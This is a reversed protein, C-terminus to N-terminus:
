KRLLLKKSIPAVDVSDFDDTFIYGEHEDSLKIDDLSTVEGRFFFIDSESMWVCAITDLILDLNTEEKVERVLCEILSEFDDSKKGGPLCYVNPLTRDEPTRKLLLTQGLANKIICVASMMIKNQRDCRCFVNEDRLSGKQLSRMVDVSFIIVQEM